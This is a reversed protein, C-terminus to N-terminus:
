EKNIDVCFNQQESKKAPLEVIHLTNMVWVYIDVEKIWDEQLGRVVSRKEPM